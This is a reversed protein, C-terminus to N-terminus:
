RQQVKWWPRDQKKLQELVYKIAATTLEPKAKLKYFMKRLVKQLDVVLVSYAYFYQIQSVRKTLLAEKLATLETILEVPDLDDLRACVAQAASALGSVEQKCEQLLAELTQREDALQQTRQFYQNAHVQTGISQSHVANIQIEIDACFRYVIAYDKSYVNPDQNAILRELAAMAIRAPTTTEGDEDISPALESTPGDM